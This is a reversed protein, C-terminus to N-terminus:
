ESELPPWTIEAVVDAVAVDLVDSPALEEDGPGRRTFWRVRRPAPDVIVVEDVGHEAADPM